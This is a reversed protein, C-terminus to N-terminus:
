DIKIKGHIATALGADVREYMGQGFKPSKDQRDNVERSMRPETM